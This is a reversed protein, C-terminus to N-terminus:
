KGMEKKVATLADLAARARRFRGWSGFPILHEGGRLSLVVPEGDGYPLDKAPAVEELAAKLADREARAEDRDATLRDMASEPLQNVGNLADREATLTAVERAKAILADLTEPWVPAYNPGSLNHPGCFSVGETKYRASLAELADLDPNTMLPTM